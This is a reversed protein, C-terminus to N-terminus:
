NKRQSAIEEPFVPTVGKLTQEGGVLKEKGTVTKEEKSRKERFCM